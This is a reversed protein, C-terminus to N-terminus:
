LGLRKRVESAAILEVEGRERALDYERCAERDREEELREWAELEELDDVPVVVACPKGNRTVLIREKGDAARSIVESARTRLEQASIQARRASRIRKM